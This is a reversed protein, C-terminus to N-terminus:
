SCPGFVYGGTIEECFRKWAKPTPNQNKAQQEAEWLPKYKSLPYCPCLVVESLKGHELDCAQSMVVVDAKIATALKTLRDVPDSPAAPEAGKSPARWKLLPCDVIIDGQTLGVEPGVVAFWKEPM